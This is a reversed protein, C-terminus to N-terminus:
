SIHRKSEDSIEVFDERVSDMLVLVVKKPNELPFEAYFPSDKMNTKNPLIERKPFLGNMFFWVGTLYLAMLLM